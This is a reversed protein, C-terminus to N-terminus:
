FYACYSKYNINFLLPTKKNLMPKLCLHSYCLATEELAAQLKQLVLRASLM